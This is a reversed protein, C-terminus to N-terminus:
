RNCKYKAEEPLPSGLNAIGRSENASLHELIKYITEAQENQNLALAIDAVSFARDKNNSLFQFVQRQLEIVKAAAKKGAEVGPQHYANIDILSAYIGVTREFLAILAGLSLETLERVTITISERNSTSLAERTGLFFGELYDGSTTGPEVELHVCTKTDRLVEIFTVFFNSLGDRLQQIYAHQDTSGKNGYVSLGQFVENGKRDLRKGLSEMVLQQLYRSFLILSDKYPIVVMDRNGIGEGAYYWCTALVTAPNDTLKPNRTTEDMLRAGKLFQDINLGQLAAPLLGVASFISTRGGVWDWIYFCDLWNRDKALLDISSNECTIAVAHDAFNIGHLNCYHMIELMGNRTEITGGSKSIVIFLTESLCDGLNCLLRNIGEPDTNDCFFLKLGNERIGLSDYVLQPGLASGGIGIIVAQKFAKHDRSLVQKNIVGNAFHRVKDITNNIQTAISQNPALSSNRLWYHGVMRGEDKNAIAGAELEKIEAQAASLRHNLKDWIADPFNMRSVDLGIGIEDYYSYYQKFRSWSSINSM